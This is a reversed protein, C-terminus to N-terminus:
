LPLGLNHRLLYAALLVLVGIALGIGVRGIPKDHWGQTENKENGSPTGTPDPKKALGEENSRVILLARVTECIQPFESAGFHTYAQSRALAASFRALTDKPLSAISGSNISHRIDQYIDRASM